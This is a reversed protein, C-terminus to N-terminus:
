IVESAARQQDGYSDSQKYIAEPAKSSPWTMILYEEVPTEAVLDIAADRGRAHVRIRYQGPGEPTLDPFYDPAESALGCVRMRGLVAELPMEVVEDWEETTVRPPEDYVEVSVAVKGTHIGTKIIAIGPQTTVLGNPFVVPTQPLTGAEAVLLTHYNMWMDGQAAAVPVSM